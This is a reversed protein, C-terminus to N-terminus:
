VLFRKYSMILKQFLGSAKANTQVQGSRDFDYYEAIKVLMAQHLLAPLSGEDFGATFEIYFYDAAIPSVFDVIWDDSNKYLYYTSATYSTGDGYIPSYYHVSQISNINNTKITYYRDYVYIDELTLTTYAVTSGISKEIEDIAVQALTLLYADDDNFNADLRLHNKIQDLDINTYTRTKPTIIM